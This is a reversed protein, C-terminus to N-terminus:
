FTNKVYLQFIPWHRAAVVKIFTRISSMKAIPSFTDKKHLVEIGYAPAFGKEVLIEEYRVITGDANIKINYVWKKGIVKM